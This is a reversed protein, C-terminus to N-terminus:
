WHWQQQSSVRIVRMYDGVRERYDSLVESSGAHACVTQAQTLAEAALANARNLSRQQAVGYLGVTRGAIVALRGLLPARLLLALLALRWETVLMLGLGGCLSLVANLAREIGRNALDELRDPETLLRSALEGPQQEDFFGAEQALVAEMLRLRAGMCSSWRASAFLTASIIQGLWSGLALLALLRLRPAAAALTAGPVLVADFLEGRIRPALLEFASLLLSICSAPLVFGLRATQRLERLLRAWSVSATDGGSSEEHAPTSSHVSEILKSHEQLRERVVRPLSLVPRPSPGAPSPPIDSCLPRGARSRSPPVALGAAVTVLAFVVGM